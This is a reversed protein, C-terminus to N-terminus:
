EIIEVRDSQVVAVAPGLSSSGVAVQLLYVHVIGKDDYPSDESKRRGEDWQLFGYGVIVGQIKDSMTSRVKTGVPFIKM